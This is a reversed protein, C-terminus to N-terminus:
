AFSVGHWPWACLFTFVIPNIPLCELFRDYTEMDIEGVRGPERTREIM